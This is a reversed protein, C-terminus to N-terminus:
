ARNKITSIRRGGLDVSDEEDAADSTYLLCSWGELCMFIATGGAFTVLARPIPPQCSTPLAQSWRGCRSLVPGCFLGLGCASLAVMFARSAPTTPSLDGYGVTSLTTITLYLSDVCTPTTPELFMFGLTGGMMLTAGVDMGPAFVTRLFPTTPVLEMTRSSLQSLEQVLASMVSIAALMYASAALQGLDTRISAHDGYGITTGTVFCFYGADEVSWGEFSAMAATGAGVVLTAALLVQQLPSGPVAEMWAGGKALVSDCFLGLGSLAMALSVLRSEPTTPAIDGYGVTTLTSTTFYIAAPWTSITPETLMAAISGAALLLAGLLVPSVAM